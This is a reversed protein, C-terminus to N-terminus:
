QTFKFTSIIHNLIDEAEDKYPLYYTLRILMDKEQSTLFIYGTEFGFKEKYSRDSYTEMDFIIRDITKNSTGDKIVGAGHNFEPIPSDVGFSISNRKSIDNESEIIFRTFTTETNGYNEVDGAYGHVNWHSPYEFQIKLNTNYYQKWQLSTPVPSSFPPIATEKLSYLNLYGKTNAFYGLVGLLVVILLIIIPTFGRQRM